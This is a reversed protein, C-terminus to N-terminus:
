SASSRTAPEIRAVPTEHFWETTLVDIRQIVVAGGYHRSCDQTPRYLRTPGKAPAWAVWRYIHKPAEMADLDGKVMFSLADIRQATKVTQKSVNPPKGAAVQAVLERAWVAPSVYASAPKKGFAM